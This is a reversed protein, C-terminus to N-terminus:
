SEPESAIEPNSEPGSVLRPDIEVLYGLEDLARGRDSWEEEVKVHLKLFVKRGLVQELEIRAATGVTKLMSGGKGIVMGKQSTRDVQITALIEIRKKLEQYTEVVVATSYPLEQRTNLFIKERVIESVLFRTSRDTLQDEPYLLPGEPLLRFLLDVLTDVDTGDKASTPLVDEYPCAEEDERARAHQEILPLLLPKRVCDVKNLVLISKRGSAKIGRRIELDMPHIKGLHRVAKDADVMHVISDAEQFSAMASQVMRRNIERFGQTKHIGPTDILVLQGEARSVIARIRNRTTQPRPTVIAVKEGVIANVLTSKGANPRGVIAVFGSRGGHVTDTEAESMFESFSFKPHASTDRELFILFSKM